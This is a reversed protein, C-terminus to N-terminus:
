RRQRPAPNCGGQSTLRQECTSCAPLHLWVRHLNPPRAGQLRQKQVTELLARAGTAYVQLRSSLLPSLLVCLAPPERPRGMKRRGQGSM